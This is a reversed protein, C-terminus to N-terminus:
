EQPYSDVEQSRTQLPGILAQMLVAWLSQADCQHIHSVRGNWRYTSWARDV